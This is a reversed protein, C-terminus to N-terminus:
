GIKRELVIVIQSLVPDHFDIASVRWGNKGQENLLRELTESRAIEIKYEYREIM